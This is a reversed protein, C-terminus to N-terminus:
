LFQPTTTTLTHALRDRQVAVVGPVRLLDRVRGAPVIMSAGGFVVEFTRLIRAGPVTRRISDAISTMRRTLFRRYSRVRNSGFRLSGTVGPSTARVGPIGGAYSAIPDVDFRALVPMPLHM